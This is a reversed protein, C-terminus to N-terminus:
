QTPLRDARAFTIAATTLGVILHAGLILSAMVTMVVTVEADRGLLLLTLGSFLIDKNPLLPLRSLMLRVTALALWWPLGIGPLTLSWMTATLAISSMIRAAHVGFIFRLQGPVLSFLRGRLAFMALSSAVVVLVSVAFTRAVIGTVITMLLPAMAAMMGITALNGALASLVAVDKIAGFPSGNLGAHRRAWLYFQAEGSYGLLVENMVQKALLPTLGSFPLNWIRRYILWECAPTLLYAAAFAVWFLPHAPIRDAIRVIDLRGIATGVAALLALSLGAGAWRAIRERQSSTSLPELAKHVEALITSNPQEISQTNL